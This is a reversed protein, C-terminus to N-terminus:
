LGPGRRSDLARLKRSEVDLKYLFTSVGFLPCGGLSLCAAQGENSNGKIFFRRFFSVELRRVSSM